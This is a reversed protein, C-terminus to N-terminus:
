KKKAKAPTVHNKNIEYEVKEGAKPEVAAQKTSSATNGGDGCGPLWVLAIAVLTISMVLRSAFRRM